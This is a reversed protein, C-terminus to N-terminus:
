RQQSKEVSRLEPVCVPILIDVMRHRINSVPPSRRIEFRRHFGAQKQCEPCSYDRMEAVKKVKQCRRITVNRMKRDSVAVNPPGLGPNDEVLSVPSIGMWPTLFLSIWCHFPHLSTSAELRWSRGKQEFSSLFLVFRHLFM